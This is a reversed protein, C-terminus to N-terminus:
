ERSMRRTVEKSMGKKKRQVTMRRGITRKRREVGKRKEVRSWAGM